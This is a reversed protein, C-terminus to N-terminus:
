VNALEYIAQAYIATAKLLDEVYLHEDAEHACEERNPFLPGFAVGAKLSRAYTGGGIALLDAPQGTQETYVRQLTTILPHKPDVYHPTQHMMVELEYGLSAFPRNLLPQWDEYRITHPYRIDIDLRSEGEAEYRMVGTNVTLPGMDRNDHAIGLAEGFHQQHLYRAILSVFQAARQDLTLKALFHALMTGANVGKEPTSGHAAVGNISLQLRGQEEKAEGTIGQESLWTQFLRTLEDATKDGPEIVAVARAPVMNSRSGASFSVLQCAGKPSPDTGSMRRHQEYSQRYILHTLGKEAHIVPFDADPSFGMTPMEETQFYREVCAWENEENTGFILRVRRRLPLGLELILKAAFVAAMTPGKDDLAGRAVIKGDVIEAAFPPTSWGEGEPVVDVHGLIGILEEGQGFEAHAAYGEVNKTTMGAEACVGVVFELARNIEEGFPAGPRATQEDLVSPIQLFQRTVAILADKRKEVEHLWDQANM